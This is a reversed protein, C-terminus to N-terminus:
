GNLNTDEQLVLSLEESGCQSSSTHNIQLFKEIVEPDIMHVMFDTRQSDFVFNDFDSIITIAIFNAVIFDTTECGMINLM